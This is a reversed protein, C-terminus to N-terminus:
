PQQHPLPPRPKEVVTFEGDIIDPDHGRGPVHPAAGSLRLWLRRLMFVALVVGAALLGFLTFFGLLALGALGLAFRAFASRPPKPVFSFSRM